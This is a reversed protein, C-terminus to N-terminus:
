EIDTLNLDDWKTEVILIYQINLRVKFIDPRQALGMLAM